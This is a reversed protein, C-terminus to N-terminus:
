LIEDRTIDVSLTHITSTKKYDNEGSIIVIDCTEYTYTDPIYISGTVTNKNIFSVESPTIVSQNNYWIEVSSNPLFYEGTIEFSSTINLKLPTNLTVTTITPTYYPVLIVPMEIYQNFSSYPLQSKFYLIWEGCEIFEPITFTLKFTDCDIFTETGSFITTTGNRKIYSIYTFGYGFSNTGTLTLDTTNEIYVWSNQDELTNVNLNIISINANSNFNGDIFFRYYGPKVDRSLPIKGSIM